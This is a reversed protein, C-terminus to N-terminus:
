VLLLYDSIFRNDLDDNLRYHSNDRVIHAIRDTQFNFLMISGRYHDFETVTMSILDGPRGLNGLFHLILPRFNKKATHLPNNILLQNLLKLYKQVFSDATFRRNEVLSLSYSYELTEIRSDRDTTRTLRVDLGANNFRVVMSTRGGM